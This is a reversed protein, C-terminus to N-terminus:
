KRRVRLRLDSPRSSLQRVGARLIRMSRQVRVSARTSAKRRARKAAPSTTGADYEHLADVSQAAPLCFRPAGVVTDADLLVTVIAQPGEDMLVGARNWSVLARSADVRDKVTDLATMPPERTQVVTSEKPDISEM